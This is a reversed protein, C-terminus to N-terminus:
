GHELVKLKKGDPIALVEHDFTKLCYQHVYENIVNAYRSRVGCFEDGLLDLLLGLEKKAKDPSEFYEDSLKISWDFDAHQAHSKFRDTFGETDTQRFYHDTAILLLKIQELTFACQFTADSLRPFTKM